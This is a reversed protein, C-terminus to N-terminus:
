PRYRFATLSLNFAFSEIKQSSTFNGFSSADASLLALSKHRLLGGDSCAQAKIRTRKIESFFLIDFYNTRIDIAIRVYIYIVSPLHCLWPRSLASPWFLTVIGRLAWRNQRSAYKSSRWYAKGSLVHRSAAGWQAVRVRQAAKSRTLAVHTGGICEDIKWWQIPYSEHEIARHLEAYSKFVWPAIYISGLNSYVGYTRLQISVLLILPRIRFTISSLKASRTLPWIERSKQYWPFDDNNEQFIMWKGVRNWSFRGVLWCHTPYWQFLTGSKM